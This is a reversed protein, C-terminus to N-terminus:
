AVAAEAPFVIVGLHVSVQRADATGLIARARAM